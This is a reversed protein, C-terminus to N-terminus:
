DRPPKSRGLYGFAAVLIVGLGGFLILKGITRGAIWAGLDTLYEIM